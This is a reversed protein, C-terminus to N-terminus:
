FGGGGGGGSGGGASGGGGSGSSSPSSALTQEAQSSLSSMRGAFSGADFYGGESGYYWRPPERLMGAFAGAWRREVRFAMAHPLFREFLEPGTITREFRDADVRALFERFGLARERARAGAETRAPMVWGFGAVVLASLGIAIAVVLPDLGAFGSGAVAATAMVAVVILAGGLGVWLTRAQDPRHRYLHRRLLAGYIGDRIEPLRKYFHEKLESLRVPAPMGDAGDSGPEFLGRLFIREHPALELWAARPRSPRFTYDTESSLGFLRSESHEEIELYGRVALDVLTSTIDHMEARHDVLTGLEAPTMGEPPEYQVAIPRKEPDRGRRRWLRLMGWLVLPPLLLPWFRRAGSAARDASTPRAVTGAPWGVGVTLQEGPELTRETWVTVAGGATGIRAEAETSGARGTYAAVRTPRAGEPLAVRVTARRIPMEWRDGTANWYLEDFDPEGQETEFFRLANRVTYRIVVTRTADEADPVWIRLRRTEGDPRETEYRLPNGAADTVGVVDLALRESRGAATRHRLSLDRFVGNWSGDFRVRLTENVGISGDPRVQIDAAFDQLVLSRGEQGAAPTAALLLAALILWRCLAAM